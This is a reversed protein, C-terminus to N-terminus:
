VETETIAETRGGCLRRHVVMILARPSQLYCSIRALVIQRNSAVQAHRILLPFVNCHIGLPIYAHTAEANMLINRADASAGRAPRCTDM